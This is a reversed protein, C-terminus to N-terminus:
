PLPLLSTPGDGLHLDDLPHLFHPHLHHIIRQRQLYGTPPLFVFLSVLQIELGPALLFGHLDLIPIQSFLDLL